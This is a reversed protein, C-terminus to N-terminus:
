TLKVKYKSRSFPPNVLDTLEEFIWQYKKTNVLKQYKEKDYKNYKKDNDSEKFDGAILKCHNHLTISQNSHTFIYEEMGKRKTFIDLSYTDRYYAEMEELNRDIDVMKKDLDLSKFHYERFLEKITKKKKSAKNDEIKTFLDVALDDGVVLSFWEVEEPKPKKGLIFWYQKMMSVFNRLINCCWILLEKLVDDEIEYREEKGNSRLVPRLIIDKNKKLDELMDVIESKTFANLRLTSLIASLQYDDKDLDGISLGKEFYPSVDILKGNDGKIAIDGPRPQLIHKYGTYGYAAALLLFLITKKKRKSEKM